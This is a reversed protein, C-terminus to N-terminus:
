HYSIVERTKRTRLTAEGGYEKSVRREDNYRKEIIIVRGNPKAVEYIYTTNM